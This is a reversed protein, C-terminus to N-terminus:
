NSRRKRYVNRTEDETRKYHPNKLGNRLAAETRVVTMCSNEAVNGSYRTTLRLFPDKTLWM